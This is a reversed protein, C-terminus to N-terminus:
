AKLEFSAQTLAGKDDEIEVWLKAGAPMPDPVEAHVHWRNPDKPDEIEAKAKVSGKADQTGIWFRVGVVKPATTAAPDVWVDIPADGGAKIVGQDRSAKVKYPGFTGDGLAIVEGGHGPGHKGSKSEDKHDHDKHDKHDKAHDHDKHSDGGDAKPKDGGGCGTLALTLALTIVSLMSLADKRM